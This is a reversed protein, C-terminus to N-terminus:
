SEFRAMSEMKQSQSSNASSRHNDFARDRTRGHDGDVRKDYILIRQSQSGDVSHFSILDEYLTVVASDNEDEVEDLLDKIHDSAFLHDRDLIEIMKQASTYDPSAPEIDTLRQFEPYSAPAHANHARLVEATRDVLEILEKYQAEFLKHLSYFLPGEVNWHFNQTKLLMSYENALTKKLGQVIPEEETRFDKRAKPVANMTTKM